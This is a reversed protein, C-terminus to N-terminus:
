ILANSNLKMSQLTLAKSILPTLLRSSYIAQDNIKTQLINTSENESCKIEGREAKMILDELENVDTFKAHNYRTILKRKAPDQHWCKEILDVLEDQKILINGSHLDRHIMQRARMLDVGESIRHLLRLKELGSLTKKSLFYHLDKNHALEIVIIYNKTEPHQTIGLYRHL